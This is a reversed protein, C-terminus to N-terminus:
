GHGHVKERAVQRVVGAQDGAPEAQGHIAELAQLRAEAKDLSYIVTAAWVENGTRKAWTLVARDRDRM